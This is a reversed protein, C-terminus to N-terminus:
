SIDNIKTINDISNPENREPHYFIKIFAVDRLFDIHGIEYKLIKIGTRRELDAKLEASKDPTILDIKEYLIAKTSVHKVIRASEMIAIAVIFMLNAAVLESISLAKSLGNIVSIAIIVFLYTMERISVQETRYRIIGFIAFLGLAMGVQLKVTDLLYILLFIAVSFLIFTFYFDRRGSKKYYFYKVIIWCVLLNFAFRVILELLSGAEFLPIGFFDPGSFGEAAGYEEAISSDYEPFDSQFM